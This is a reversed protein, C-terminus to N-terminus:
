ALALAEDRERVGPISDRELAGLEMLHDVLPRQRDAQLLLLEAVQLRTLAGREVALEGFRRGSGRLLRLLEFAERSSLLGEEIALQGLPPREERQRAIAEVFAEAPVTGSRVLELEIDM